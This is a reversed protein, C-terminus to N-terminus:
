GQPVFPLVAANYLNAGSSREKRLLARMYKSLYVVRKLEEDPLHGYKSLVKQISAEDRETLEHSEPSALFDVQPALRLFVKGRESWTELGPVLHPLKALHM